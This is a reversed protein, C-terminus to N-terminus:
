KNPEEWKIDRLSKVGRSETPQSTAPKSASTPMPANPELPILEDQVPELKLTKSDRYLDENVVDSTKPQSTAETQAADKDGLLSQELKPVLTAVLGFVFFLGLVLCKDRNSIKEM